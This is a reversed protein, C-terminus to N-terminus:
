ALDTGSDVLRGMGVSKYGIGGSGARLCDRFLGFRGLVCVLCCEFVGLCTAFAELVVWVGGM